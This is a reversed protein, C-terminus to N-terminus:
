SPKSNRQNEEGIYLSIQEEGAFYLSVMNKIEKDAEDEMCLWALLRKDAVLPKRFFFSEEKRYELIKTLGTYTEFLYSYETELYLPQELVKIVDELTFYPSTHFLKSILTGIEPFYVQAIVFEMVRMGLPTLDARNILQFYRPIERESDHLYSVLEEDARLLYQEQNEETMCEGLLADMKNATQDEGNKKCYVSLRILAKRTLLELITM